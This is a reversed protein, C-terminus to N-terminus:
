EFRLLSLFQGGPLLLQSSSQLYTVAKRMDGCAVTLIADLAGSDLRVHEQALQM